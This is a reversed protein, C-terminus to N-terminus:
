DFAPLGDTLEPHRAFYEGRLLDLSLNDLLQGNKFIGERRRMSVRFGSKQALRVAAPNGSQTWVRVVRLGLEQFLFRLLVEQADLALGTGWFPRAVMIGLTAAWRPELGSYQVIGAREGSERHEILFRGDDRDFSFERSQFRKQYMPETYDPPLTKSWAQTELDNRLGLLFPLDDAREERLRTLTGELAM